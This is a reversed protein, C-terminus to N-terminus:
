AQIEAYSKSGLEITVSNTNCNTRVFTINDCNCKFDTGNFVEKLHFRKPRSALQHEFIIVGRLSDQSYKGQGAPM